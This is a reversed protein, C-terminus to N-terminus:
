LRRDEFFRELRLHDPIGFEDASNAARFHGREKAVDGSGSFRARFSGDKGLFAVGDERMPLEIGFRDAGEELRVHHREILPVRGEEARMTEFIGMGWLAGADGARLVTTSADVLRDNWWIHSIQM